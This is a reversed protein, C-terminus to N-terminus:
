QNFCSAMNAQNIIASERVTGSVTKEEIVMQSQLWYIRRRWTQLKGAKVFPNTM